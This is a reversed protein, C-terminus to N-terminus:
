GGGAMAPAGPSTILLRIRHPKGLLANRYLQRGYGGTDVWTLLSGRLPGGTWARRLLDTDLQEDLGAGDESARQLELRRHL